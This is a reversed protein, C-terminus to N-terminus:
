AMENLIVLFRRVEKANLDQANFSDKNAFAHIIVKIKNDM